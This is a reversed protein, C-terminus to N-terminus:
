WRTQCQSVCEKGVRSDELAPEDPIHERIQHRLSSPKISEIRSYVEQRVEPVPHSLLNSLVNASEADNGRCLLDVAYLVEGPHQSALKKHLINQTQPNDLESRFRVRRFGM